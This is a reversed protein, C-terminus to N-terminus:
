GGHERLWQVADATSTAEVLKLGNPGLKSVYNSVTLKTIASTSTITLFHRIGHRAFAPFCVNGIFSQIEGSFAGTAASSDVIWARGAHAKAHDLGKVMVAEQFQALTVSYNSWTDIIARVEANWEVKVKGPIEHVIM